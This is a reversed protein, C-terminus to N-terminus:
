GEEFKGLIDAQRIVYVDPDPTQMWSRHRALVWDGQMLHHKHFVGKYHPRDCEDPEECREYDGVSVVIMQDKAVKDRAQAPILIPSGRYNEETQIHRVYALGRAPFLGDMM